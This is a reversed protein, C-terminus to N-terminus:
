PARHLPAAPVSVISVTGTASRAHIDVRVRKGSYGATEAQQQVPFTTDPAVPISSGADLGVRVQGTASQGLARVGLDPAPQIAIEIAGGTTASLRASAAVRAKVRIPAATAVLSRPVPARVGPIGILNDIDVDGALTVNDLETGGLFGPIGKLKIGVNGRLTAAALTLRRIAVIGHFAETRVNYAGRNPLQVRVSLWTPQRGPQTFGLTSHWVRVLLRGEHATVHSHLETEQIVRAAARAPDVSGEGFGEMRIQLRVMDDDSDTVEVSGYESCIIVAGGRLVRADAIFTMVREATYGDTHIGTDARRIILPKGPPPSHRCQSTRTSYPDAAEQADAPDSAIGSICGAVVIIGLERNRM